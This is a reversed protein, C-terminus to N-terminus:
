WWLCILFTRHPQWKTESTKPIILSYRFYITLCYRNWMFFWNVFIRHLIPHLFIRWATAKLRKTFLQFLLLIVRSNNQYAYHRLIYGKPRLYRKLTFQLSIFIKCRHCSSLIWWFKNFTSSGIFGEQSSRCM